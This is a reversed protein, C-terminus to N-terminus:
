FGVQSSLYSSTSCHGEAPPPPMQVSLMPPILQRGGGQSDDLIVLTSEIGKYGENGPVTKGNWTPFFFFFILLWLALLGLYTPMVASNFTAVLAWFLM